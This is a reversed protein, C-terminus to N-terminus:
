QVISALGTGLDPIVIHGRHNIGWATSNGARGPADITRYRGRHLVFGHNRGAADAYAGTVRGEDNIGFGATAVSRPVDLRTIRGRDWRFGHRTNPAFRDPPAGADTYSGVVQGRNNLALPYDVKQAGRVDIITFRGDPERLFGVGRGRANMTQGVVQGRDNIDTVGAGDFPGPPDAITTIRGNRHRIFGHVTGPPPPGGGLTFGPDYYTGAIQGRDNIGAAFTAQAGPVSFTTVRGRRDKVFSRIVGPDDMYFGVVQGRNNVNVHAVATAGRIGGLPTFRGNRFLFAGNPDAPAPAQRSSDLAGAASPAAGALVPIVAAAALVAAAVATVTSVGPAKIRDLLAM